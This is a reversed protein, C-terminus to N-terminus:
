TYRDKQIEDQGEKRKKKPRDKKIIKKKNGEKDTDRNSEKETSGL